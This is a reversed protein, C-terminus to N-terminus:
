SMLGCVFILVFLLGQPAPLVREENRSDVLKLDRDLSPSGQRV